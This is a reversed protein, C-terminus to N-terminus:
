QYSIMMSPRQSLLIRHCLHLQFKCSVDMDESSARSKGEKLEDIKAIPHRTLRRKAFAEKKPDGSSFAELWDSFGNSSLDIDLEVQPSASLNLQSSSRPNDFGDQQEISASPIGDDSYHSHNIDIVDPEVVNQEVVRVVEPAPPAFQHHSTSSSATASDGRLLSFPSRIAAKAKKGPRYTIFSSLAPMLKSTSVLLNAHHRLSVRNIQYWCSPVEASARPAMRNCYGFPTVIVRAWKLQDWLACEIRVRWGCSGSRKRERGKLGRDQHTLGEILVWEDLRVSFGGQFTYGLKPKRLYKRTDSQVREESRSTSACVSVSVKSIVQSLQCEEFKLRSSQRRHEPARASPRKLRPIFIYSSNNLVFMMYHMRGWTFQWNDECYLMEM